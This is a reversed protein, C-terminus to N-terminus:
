QFIDLIEKTVKEQCFYLTGKSVLQSFIQILMEVKTNIYEESKMHETGSFAEQVIVLFCKHNVLAEQHNDM